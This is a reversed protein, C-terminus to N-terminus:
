SSAAEVGELPADDITVWPAYFRIKNRPVGSSFINGQEQQRVLLIPDQDKVTAIIPAVLPHSDLRIASFLLSKQADLNFLEKLRAPNSTLHM